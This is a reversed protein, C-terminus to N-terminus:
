VFSRVPGGTAVKGKPAAADEEGGAAVEEAKGAKRVTPRVRDALEDLEALKLLGSLFTASRTYRDDFQEIAHNKAALSAQAVRTQRSVHQLHQHLADILGKLEGAAAIVDVHATKVRPKPMKVTRLGTEIERAFGELMSLDQPTSQSFGIRKLVAAGYVGGVLSRLEVLKDYLAVGAADREARPEDDDALERENHTDAAVMVDRAEALKRQVLTVLQAMDPVKEGKKVLPAFHRTFAAQVAAATTEAAAQVSDADKQRDIVMKSPM